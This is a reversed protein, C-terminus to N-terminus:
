SAELHLAPAPAGDGEMLHPNGFSGGTQWGKGPYVPLRMESSWFVYFRARHAEPGAPM